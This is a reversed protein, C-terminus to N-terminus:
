DAPDFFVSYVEHLFERVVSMYNPDEVNWNDTIMLGNKIVVMCAMESRALIDISDGHDPVCRQTSIFLDILDFVVDFMIKDFEAIEQASFARKKYKGVETFVLSKLKTVILGGPNSTMGQYYISKVANAFKTNVLELEDNTPRSTLYSPLERSIDSGNTVKVTGAKSAMCKNVYAPTAIDNTTVKSINIEHAMKTAEEKKNNGGTLSIKM